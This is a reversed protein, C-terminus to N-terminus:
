GQLAQENQDSINQSQTLKNQNYDCNAADTGHADVRLFGSHLKM